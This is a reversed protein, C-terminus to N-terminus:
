YHALKTKPSTVSHAICTTQCSLWYLMVCCRFHRGYPLPSCRVFHVYARHNPSQQKRDALFIEFGMGKAAYGPRELLADCYETVSAKRDNEGFRCESFRLTKSITWIWVVQGQPIDQKCVDMM